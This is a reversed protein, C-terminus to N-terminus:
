PNALDGILRLFVERTVQASVLRRVEGSQKLYRCLSLRGGNAVLLEYYYTGNDSKQPPTSRLQVVCQDADIEVPGIPELLYTLRRSLAEATQKLQTLPAAALASVTVELTEFACALTDLALLKCRLSDGDAGCQLIREDRSFSGLAGLAESARTSLSMVQGM